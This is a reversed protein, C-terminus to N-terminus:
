DSSEDIKRNLEQLLVVMPYLGPIPGYGDKSVRKILKAKKMMTLNNRVTKEAINIKSAIEQSSAEKGNTSVVELIKFRTSEPNLISFLVSEDSM